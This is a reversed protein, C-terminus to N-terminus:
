ANVVTEEQLYEVIHEAIERSERYSEDGKSESELLFTVPSMACDSTALCNWRFGVHCPDCYFLLLPLHELNDVKFWIHYQREDHGCCSEVTRIGPIQNIAKCIDICEKDM